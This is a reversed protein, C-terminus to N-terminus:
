DAGGLSVQDKLEAMEVSSFVLSCVYQFSILFIECLAWSLEFNFCSVLSWTLAANLKTKMPWLIARTKPGIVSRLLCFRLLGPNSEVSLGKCGLM